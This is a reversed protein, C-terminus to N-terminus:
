VEWCAETLGARGKIVPYVCLICWYLVETEGSSKAMLPSQFTMVFPPILVFTWWSSWGHGITNNLLVFHFALCFQLHPKSGLSTGLSGHLCTNSDLHLASFPAIARRAGTDTLLAAGAPSYCAPCTQATLPHCSSWAASLFYKLWKVGTWCNLSTMLRGHLLLQYHPWRLHALRMLCANLSRQKCQLKLTQQAAFPM